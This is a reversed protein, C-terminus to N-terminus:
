KRIPMEKDAELWQDIELKFKKLKSEREIHAQVPDNWDEKNIFKRITKRDFGTKKQIQSINTGDEFYMTRLDAIETMKLM